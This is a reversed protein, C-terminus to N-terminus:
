DGTAGFFAPEGATKPSQEVVTEALGLYADVVEQLFAVTDGGPAANPSDPL